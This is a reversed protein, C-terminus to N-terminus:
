RRVEVATKASHCSHCLAQWNGTDWFLAEDGRHPVVHDVETSLKWVGARECHLCMPHEALFARSARRWRQTDYLKAWPEREKRDAYRQGPLTHRPHDPCPQLRPCGYRGCPRAPATPM